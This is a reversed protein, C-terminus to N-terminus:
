LLMPTQKIAYLPTLSAYSVSRSPPRCNTMRAIGAVEVPITRPTNPYSGTDDCLQDHRGPKFCARGAGARSVLAVRQRSDIGLARTPGTQSFGMRADLRELAGLPLVGYMRRFSRPWSSGESQLTSRLYPPAPATLHSNRQSCLAINIEASTITAHKGALANRSGKRGSFISSSRPKWKAPGRCNARPM